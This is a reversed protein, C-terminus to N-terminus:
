EVFKYLYPSHHETTECLDTQKNWDQKNIATPGSMALKKRSSHTKAGLALPSFLTYPPFWFLVWGFSQFILWWTLTTLNTTFTLVTHNPIHLNESM